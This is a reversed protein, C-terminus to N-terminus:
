SRTDLSYAHCVIVVAVTVEKDINFKKDDDDNDWAPKTTRRRSYHPIVGHQQINYIHQRPHIIWTTWSGAIDTWGWGGNSNNKHLREKAAVAASLLTPTSQNQHHHILLGQGRVAWKKTTNQFWNNGYWCILLSQTVAKIIVLQIVEVILEVSFQCCFRIYITDLSIHRNSCYRIM